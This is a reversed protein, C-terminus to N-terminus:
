VCSSLQLVTLGSMEPLRRDNTVFCRCGASMAAILHLADPTKIRTAARLRAAARLQDRTIDILHVGRAQTLVADYRDALPANGVRIPIM